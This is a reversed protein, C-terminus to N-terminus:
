IMNPKMDSYNCNINISVFLSIILRLEKTNERINILKKTVFNTNIHRCKSLLENKKKKIHKYIEKKSVTIQFEELNIKSKKTAM